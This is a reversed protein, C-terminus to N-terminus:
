EALFFGGYGALPLISDFLAHPGGVNFLVVQLIEALARCSLDKRFLRGSFFM